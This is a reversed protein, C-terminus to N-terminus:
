VMMFSAIHCDFMAGQKTGNDFRVFERFYYWPNITLEAYIKAKQEDTLDDGYPDVGSLSDDYLVLHQAYNKIGKAKLFKAFTIFSTNKTRIDYIM